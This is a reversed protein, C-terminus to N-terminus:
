TNTPTVSYNQRTFNDSAAAFEQSVATPQPTAETLLGGKQAVCQVVGEANIMGAGLKNQFGPNVSNINIVTDFACDLVEGPSVQGNPGFISLGLALVGAIQPCAM